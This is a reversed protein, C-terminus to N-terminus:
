QTFEPSYRWIKWVGKKLSMEYVRSSRKDDIYFITYTPSDQDHGIFWTSWPTEKNKTGQRLILFDGDEFWEFTATGKIVTKLDSLFSANTLEMEWIGIFVRLNQLAPNINSNEM